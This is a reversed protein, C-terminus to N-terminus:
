NEKEEAGTARAFLAGPPPELREGTLWANFEPGVEKCQRELEAQLAMAYGADGAAHAAVM